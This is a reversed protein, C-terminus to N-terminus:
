LKNAVSDYLALQGGNNVVCNNLDHWTWKYGFHVWDNDNCYMGLFHDTLNASRWTCNGVFGQASVLGLLALGLTLISSLLKM